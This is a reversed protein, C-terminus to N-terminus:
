VKVQEEYKVCNNNIVERVVYQPSNNICIYIRGIYEGILGLMIMIMGGLFLIVAMTSSYGMPIGPNVIKGIVVAVCAVFGVLAILGGMVTAIRLPKVSFATFGNLWLKLSRIFTFNGHGNFRKREEMEVNVIRRTSRLILGELYPYPNKYNLIEDIIYQKVIAFNSFQLSKPKGILIRSMLSNVSSGFNKFASQKKKPYRAMSVDYDKGLADYLRWLEDMPCQGDDDLNVVYDGKAFSYGAMIASARGMNKSLDVVLLRPNIRAIDKLIAFVNDPSGDNVCIIEYDYGSRLAMIEDIETIVSEITHESGYCPIVFSLKPM